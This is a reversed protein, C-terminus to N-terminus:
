DCSGDGTDFCCITALYGNMGGSYMEYRNFFAVGGGYNQYICGYRMNTQRVSPVTCGNCMGALSLSLYEVATQCQSKSTIPLYGGVPCNGNGYGGRKYAHPPSPPSPLTPPSPTLPPPSPPPPSPPPLPLASYIYAKWKSSGTMGVDGDQYVRCKKKNSGARFKYDCCFSQTYCMEEAKRECWDRCSTRKSFLVEHM